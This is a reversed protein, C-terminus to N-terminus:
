SIKAQRVFGIGFSLVEMNWMSTHNVEIIVATPSRQMM